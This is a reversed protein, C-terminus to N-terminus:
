AGSTRTRCLAVHEAIMMRIVDLKSETGSRVEVADELAKQQQDRLEEFQGAARRASNAGSRAHGQGGRDGQHDAAAQTPESDAGGCDRNRDRRTRRSSPSPRFEPDETVKLAKLEAIIGKRAAEFERRRALLAHAAAASTVGIATLLSSREFDLAQRKEQRPNAAPTVTVVALDGITIRAPALVPESYAEKPRASGIRVLGAGAPKVDVALHAAAATLQADLSAIQRELADLDEVAKPKVRIQSLQADIKSPRRRSPPLNGPLITRASRAFCPGTLKELQRERTSLARLKIEGAALQETTRALGTRAEHERARQDPLAANLATESARNADIRAVVDRHQQLRQASAEVARRAGTDEAELRRIEQTIARAKSLSDKAEVLDQAFQANATPDTIEARRRRHQLLETFQQELAALKAQAEAEVIQWRDVSRQAQNLPGESKPRGMDTLHHNLEASVQDLVQRAREGGM